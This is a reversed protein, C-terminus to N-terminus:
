HRRHLTQRGDTNGAGQLIPDSSRADHTQDRGTRRSQGSRFRMDLVRDNEINILVIIFVRHIPVSSESRDSFEREVMILILNKKKKVLRM